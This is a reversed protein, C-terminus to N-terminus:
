DRVIERGKRYGKRVNIEKRAEERIGKWDNGYM